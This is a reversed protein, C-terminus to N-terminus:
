VTSNDKASLDEYERQSRRHYAAIADADSEYWQEPERKQLAEGEARNAVLRFDSRQGDHRVLAYPDDDSREPAAAIRKDEAIQQEYGAMLSRASSADSEAKAIRALAADREGTLEHVRATLRSNEESLENVKYTLQRLREAQTM